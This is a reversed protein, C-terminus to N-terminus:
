NVLVVSEYRMAPDTISTREAQSVLGDHSCMIKDLPRGEKDVSLDAPPAEGVTTFKILLPFRFVFEPYMMHRGVAASDLSVAPPM